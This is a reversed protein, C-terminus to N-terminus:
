LAQYMTCAWYINQQIKLLGSQVGKELIPGEGHPVAQPELLQLHGACSTAPGATAIVAFSAKWPCSNPAPGRPDTLRPTAPGDPASGPRPMPPRVGGQNQPGPLRGPDRPAPQQRSGTRPRQRGAEKCLFADVVLALQAVLHEVGRGLQETVEDLVAELAHAAGEFAGHAKCTLPGACRARPCLSPGPGARSDSPRPTHM